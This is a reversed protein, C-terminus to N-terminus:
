VSKLWTLAEEADDFIKITLGLESYMDIFQQMNLQGVFKDPMVIAWYKWGAEMVRPNWDQIGWESDEKPLASNKRDDSLWKNAGHEKFVELGKELVNRFEQGHIFKHFVHHVLKLDPYYWLTAYETDIITTRSM